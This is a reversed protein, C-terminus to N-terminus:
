RIRYGRFYDKRIGVLVGLLVVFATIICAAILRVTCGGVLISYMMTPVLVGVITAFSYGNGWGISLRM